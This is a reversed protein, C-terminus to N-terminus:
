QNYKSLVNKIDNVYENINRRICETFGFATKRGKVDYGLSRLDNIVKEGIEENETRFRFTIGECGINKGIPSDKPHIVYTAIAKYPLIVGLAHTITKDEYAQNEGREEGL